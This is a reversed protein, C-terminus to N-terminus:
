VRIGGTFLVTLSRAIEAVTATGGRVRADFGIAWQPGIIARRAIEPDIETDDIGIRSIIAKRIEQLHPTLEDRYFRRGEALESFLAVACVPGYAVFFSLCLENLAVVFESGSRADGLAKVRAALDAFGREVPRQVAEVYIQDKSDFLRYLFGETIGARDAIEKSRAGTPGSELFVGRAAALVLERREARPVRSRSDPAAEIALAFGDVPYAPAAPAPGARYRAQNKTLGPAFLLTLQHAVHAPDLEAADLLNELAIGFYVGLLAQAAVDVDLSDAEWGSVDVIVRVVVDRVRPFLVQDYFRPGEVPDSFLAAGILPAMEIVHGLFLEHFHELVQSRSMDSRQALEHTQATLSEIFRDLPELIALQYIEDKSRFYRYVLPETIGAREAVDRVRTGSVGLESFVARAAGVIQDRREPARLRRRAPPTGAQEM